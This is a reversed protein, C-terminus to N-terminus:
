NSAGRAPHAHFSTPSTSVNDANGADSMMAAWTSVASSTKDAARLCRTAMVPGSLRLIAHSLTPNIDAPTLSAWLQTLTENSPLLNAQKNEILHVMADVLNDLAPARIEPIDSQLCISVHLECLRAAIDFSQRMNWAAPIEEIMRAATNTDTRIATDLAVKLTDLDSSQATQYAVQIGLQIRLLAAAGPYKDVSDLSNKAPTSM